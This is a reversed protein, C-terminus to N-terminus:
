VDHTEVPRPGDAMILYKVYFYYSALTIATGSSLILGAVPDVHDERAIRLSGAVALCPGVTGGTLGIVWGGFCTGCKMLNGLVNASVQDIHDADKKIREVTVLAENATERTVKIFSLTGSADRLTCEGIDYRSYRYGSEDSSLELDSSCESDSSAYDKVSTKASDDMDLHFDHGGTRATAVPVFQLSQMFEDAEKLVRKASLSQASANSKWDLDILISSGGSGEGIRGLALEQAGYVYGSMLTFSMICFAAKDVPM